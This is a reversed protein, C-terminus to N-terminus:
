VAGQGVMSLFRAVQEKGYVPIRLTKGQTFPNGPSFGLVQLYYQIETLEDESNATLRIESGKKYTHTGEANLRASNQRRVHGNRHFFAALQLIVEEQNDNKKM